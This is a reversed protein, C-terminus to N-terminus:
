QIATKQNYKKVEDESYKRKMYTLSELDENSIPTKCLRCKWGWSNSNKNILGYIMVGGCNKHYKPFNKFWYIFFTSLRETYYKIFDEGLETSLMTKIIPKKESVKLLIYNPNQIYKQIYPLWRRGVSIATKQHTQIFKYNAFLAPVPDFYPIYRKDGTEKYKYYYILSKKLENPDLDPMIWDLVAQVNEENPSFASTAVNFSQGIKALTSKKM